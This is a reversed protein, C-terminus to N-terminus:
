RLVWLGEGTALVIPALGATEAPCIAVAHVGAPVPVRLVEQATGDEGLTQIRAFDQSPDRTDATTVLEVSGDGDLDGLALQAGAPDPLTVRQSGLELEILADKQRRSAFVSRERGDRGTWRIGAIADVGHDGPASSASGACETRKSGLAIAELRACGGGPWPLREPYRQVARLSADFRVADTRDSLGIELSGPARVVASGIPERLPRPAVDALASWALTQGAVFKGRALRGLQVRQRGVSVIELSGDADADGCALAVSPEDLPGSKDIRSVVLPVPPLFTRLEADLPRAAFARARSGPGVNRLREWFRPVGSLEDAVASLQNADLRVRLAILRQGPVALRPLEQASILDGAARARPGLEGALSSSLRASLGDLREARTNTEFELLVVLTPTHAAGLGQALTCAVQGIATSHRKTCEASTTTVSPTARQHTQAPAPPSVSQAAAAHAILAVGTALRAARRAFV